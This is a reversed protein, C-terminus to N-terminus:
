LRNTLLPHSSEPSSDPQKAVPTCWLARLIPKGSATGRKRTAGLNGILIVRNLSAKSPDLLVRTTFMIALAARGDYRGM